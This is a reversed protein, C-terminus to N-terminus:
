RNGQRQPNFRQGCRDALYQTACAANRKPLGFDIGSEGHPSSDSRRRRWTTESSNPIPQSRQRARPPPKEFRRRRNHEACFCESELRFPEPERAPQMDLCVTALDSPAFPSRHSLRLAASLRRNAILRPDESGVGPVGRRDLGITEIALIERLALSSKRDCEVQGSLGADVAIMRQRAAFHALNPDCDRVDAVHLRQEVFNRQRGHVCGHRDIRGRRPEHSEIDGGGILLAHGAVLKLAGRLVVDDLFIERSSGVYERWARGQAQGCIQNQEAGALRRFPIRHIDTRIV